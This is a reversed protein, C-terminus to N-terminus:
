YVPTVTYGERELLRLIGEDGPLHLAGVAIFSNGEMLRPKMRRVMRYNRDLLARQRFQRALLSNGQLMHKESFALLGTLDGQLYYHLLDDFQAALRHFGKIADDLMVLQHPLSFTEFIAVQERSTELGYRRKAQREAQQYLRLDLVVGSRSRPMSLTVMVAWPKMREVLHSPIGYRALLKVCVQYRQRGILSELKQGAPLLMLRNAEQLSLKDLMLEAVFSDAQRLKQRIIDPYNIVRSDDSHVTGLIYSPRVGAKEIQWLIGTQQVSAPSRAHAHGIIQLVGVLLIIALSIHTLRM